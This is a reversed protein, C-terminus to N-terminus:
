RPVERDATKRRKTTKRSARRTRTWWRYTCASSCRKARQNRTRDVFWKQCQPCRKVRKIRPDQLAEWLAGLVIAQLSSYGITPVGRLDTGDSLFLYVPAKRALQNFRDVVRRPLKWYELRPPLLELIKEVKRVEAGIETPPAEDRPAFANLRTVLQELTGTSAPRKKQRRVTAKPGHPLRARGM